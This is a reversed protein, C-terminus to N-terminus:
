ARALCNAVVVLEEAEAPLLMYYQIGMKRINIELQASNQEVAFLIPVEPDKSRLDAVQRSATAPDPDVQLLFASPKSLGPQVASACPMPGEAVHFKHSRLIDGIKHSQTGDHAAVVVVVTGQRPGDSPSFDRSGQPKSM